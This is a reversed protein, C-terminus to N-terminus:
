GRPCVMSTQAVRAMGGSRGAQARIQIDTVAEAKEARMDAEM